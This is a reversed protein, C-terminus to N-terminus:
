TCFGIYDEVPSPEVEGTTVRVEASVRVLYSCPALPLGWGNPAGVGFRDASSPSAPVTFPQAATPGGELRMSVAGMNPHAATFRPTLTGGVHACGMGALEGLDLVTVAFASFPPTPNWEAHRTINTYTPNSVAVRHVRGAEQQTSADGWRRVIMRVTFFHERPVARGESQAAEGAQLQTCDVTEFATLATSALNALLGTNAVFLGGAAANINNQQPVRVWGAVVDANVYDAGPPPAGPPGNVLVRKNVLVEDPTPAAPDFLQLTGIRTEVIMAPPVAAFASPEITSGPAYEAFEFRYELPDSSLPMYKGLVGRLPLTEFFARAALTPDPHLTRGSGAPTSAIGTTVHYRGIQFFSTIPHTETGDGGGPATDLHLDVVKCHGVNERDPERGRARPETLLSAGGGAEVRFYLDPGSTLEARVGPFITPTFDSGVYDIRYRGAADTAAQGLADDQLWDVDFARVTVNPVPTNAAGARVHGCVAWADFRTRIACWFRAPITYEWAAIAGRENALHWRPQLTTLAFQVPRPPRPRPPLHPVTGCYVDIEFASGTYGQTAGLVLEFRGAADVTAEGLLDDAKAAVQDDTLMAFTDKALATARTVTLEPAERPRYLRVRAGELAEPFDPAVLGDLRGQLTFATPGDPATTPRFDTVPRATSRPAVAGGNSRPSSTRDM